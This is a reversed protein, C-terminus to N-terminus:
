GLTYFGGCDALAGTLAPMRFLLSKQFKLSGGSFPNKKCHNGPQDWFLIFNRKPQCPVAKSCHASHLVINTGSLPPFFRCQESLMM